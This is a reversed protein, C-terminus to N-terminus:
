FTAYPLVPSQFLFFLSLTREWRVKAYRQGHCLGTDSINIFAQHVTRGKRYNLESRVQALFHMSSICAKWLVISIGTFIRYIPKMIAVNWFFFSNLIFKVYYKIKFRKIVNRSEHYSQASKITFFKIFRM